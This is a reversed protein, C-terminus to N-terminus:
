DITVGDNNNSESNNQNRNELFMSKKRGDGQNRVVLTNTRDKMNRQSGNLNNTFAKSSNQDINIESTMKSNTKPSRRSVSTQRQINTKRKKNQEYIEMIEKKFEEMGM